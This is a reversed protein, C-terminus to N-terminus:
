QLPPAYLIGGTSWLHNLGRPVGLRSRSGINREFVEAYNGVAKVARLAWENDLGLAKGLNSRQGM